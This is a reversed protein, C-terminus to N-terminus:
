SINLYAGLAVIALVAIVILVLLVTKMRRTRKILRQQIMPLLNTHVHDPIALGIAATYRQADAHHLPPIDDDFSLCRVWPNGERVPLRLGASLYEVLGPIAAGTVYMSKLPSVDNGKQGQWSIAFREIITKLEDVRDILLETTDLASRAVGNQKLIQLAENSDIDREKM